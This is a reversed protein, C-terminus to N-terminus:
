CSFVFNFIKGATPECSPDALRSCEYTLKERRGLPQIWRLTFEEVCHCAQLGFNRLEVVWRVLAAMRSTMNPEGRKKDILPPLLHMNAWQPPIHMDDLFRWRTAGKWGGKFSAKIYEKRRQRRLSLGIESFVVKKYRAPSYFYWFLSTDSAIGLWCECLISFCSLADIANPNLHVLECGLHSMVAMLFKSPPLELGAVLHSKFCVVNTGDVTPYEMIPVSSELGGNLWGFSHYAKHDAETVTTKKWYDVMEPTIKDAMKAAAMNSSSSAAPVDSEMGSGSKSKNVIPEDTVSLIQNTEDAM